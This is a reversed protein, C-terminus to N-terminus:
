SVMAYDLWPGNGQYNPHARFLTGGKKFESFVYVAIRINDRRYERFFCEKVERPVFAEEKRNQEERQGANPLLRWIEPHTEGLGERVM